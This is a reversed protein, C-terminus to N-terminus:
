SAVDTVEDINADVPYFQQQQEAMTVLRQCPEFREGYQQVLLRLAQVVKDAGLSDLYRFPGGLFPPFGIGFVAGIDGDRPNRIISEDLCRVAENLMLMTCRQTIVGAGLHAKPTVGVLYLYQCRSTKSQKEGSLAIVSRRLIGM